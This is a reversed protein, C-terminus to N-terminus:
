IWIAWSCVVNGHLWHRSSQFCLCCCWFGCCRLPTFYVSIKYYSICLITEFFSCLYYLLSIPCAPFCDWRFTSHFKKLCWTCLLCKSSEILRNVFMSLFYVEFLSITYSVSFSITSKYLSFNYANVMFCSCITNTRFYNVSRIHASHCASCKSCLWHCVWCCYLWLWRFFWCCFFCFHCCCWCSCWLFTYVWFCCICCMCFKRRCEFFFHGVLIAYLYVSGPVSCVSFYSSLSSPLFSVSCIYFFSSFCKSLLLYNIFPSLRIIWYGCYLWFYCCFHCLLWYFYTLTSDFFSIHKYYSLISPYFICILM